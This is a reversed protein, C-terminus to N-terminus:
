PGIVTLLLNKRKSEVARSLVTRGDSRASADSCTLLLLTESASGSRTASIAVLSNVHVRIKDHNIVIMMIM